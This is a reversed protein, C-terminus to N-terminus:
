RDHRRRHRAGVPRSEFRRHVYGDRLRMGLDLAKEGSKIAALDFFYGVGAFSDIASGPTADLDDKQYGLKEALRRGMEFHYEGNPDLAVDRYMSKVKKELDAIDLSQQLTTSEMFDEKKIKIVHTCQKLFREVSEVMERYSHVTDPPHIHEQIPVTLLLVIGCLLSINRPKM